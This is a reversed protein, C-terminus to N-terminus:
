AQTRATRNEEAKLKDKKWREIKVDSWGNKRMKKIELPLHESAPTQSRSSIGLMTGCDCSGRTALVYSMQGSIHKEIHQNNLPSFNMSFEDLIDQISERKINQPIVGSIIHCM